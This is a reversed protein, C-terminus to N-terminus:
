NLHNIRQKQSLISTIRIGFNENIVVVEGQAILKSNVYIELPEDTLRNLEVVSGVGLSLIEKISKRSNGLVVSFDLPVDMLLDLNDIGSEVKQGALNDFEPKQITVKRTRHKRTREKKESSSEDDNGSNNTSDTEICSSIEKGMEDTYIHFIQSKIIDDIIFEFSAVSVKTDLEAGDFNLTEGNEWLEVEPPYIDVKKDIMTAISTSVSGIMQSMAESVASLELETFIKNEPNGDGDVMLDAIVVADEVDLLFLNSGKLGEKFKFKAAVKPQELEELADKLTMHKISPNQINVEKHLISALTIGAQSMSTSTVERILSTANKEFSTTSSKKSRKKKGNTKDQALIENM